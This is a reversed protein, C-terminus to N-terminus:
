SADGERFALIRPFRELMLRGFLSRGAYSWHNTDTYLFRGQPDIVQCSAQPASCVVSQRDIYSLGNEAALRRLRENVQADSVSRQEYMVHNLRQLQSLQLFRLSDDFTPFTANQGVLVLQAKTLGRLLAVGENLDQVTEPTWRMAIFLYDADAM